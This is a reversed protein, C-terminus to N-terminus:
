SICSINYDISLSLSISIPNNGGVVNPVSLDGEITFKNNLEDIIVNSVGQVSLLLEKATDYWLNDEPSVLLSTTTFFTNSSQFNYPKVNVKATFSASVLECGTYGSIIDIYGENLMKSLSYKGETNVQVQQEGMTFTEYSSIKNIKPIEITRKQNSGNTDIVVLSYTGATLGTVTIEQPNEPVNDSWNFVFPPVGSSIFATIEGESGSGASKPSLYFNVKPLETVVVQTTQKCGTYDSVSVSHQGSSVNYFTVATLITNAYTVKNDIYYTYPPTAGGESIKVEIVGNNTGSPTNTVQTSITFKNDTMILVEQSKGCNTADEIAVMYTGGSLGDFLYSTQNSTKVLSNGDPYILTYVYPFAGNATSVLISGDNISCNSNKATIGVYSISNPTQLLVSTNLKCYGADIISFNYQGSTLGTLTLTQSYSIEVYGTSASYYYPATGGSINLTVSGDNSFCSPQTTVFSLLVMKDASYITTNKTVSCGQSSIVQVSYVGNTLGTITDGTQGNSWLYSYEGIGYTLNIVSIRGSNIGGCSTNQVAFLEYDFIPTKEVIFTESTASCGWASAIVYYTGASLNEFTVGFNNSTLTNIVNNNVDYINFFLNGNEANTNVTVSGNNLDCTSNVINSVNCCFQNSVYFTTGVDDITSASFNKQLKVKYLGSSLNNRVSSLVYYDIGLNPDVWSISYISSSASLVTIEASGSGNSLCDGTIQLNFNIAM